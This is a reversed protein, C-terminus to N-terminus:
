KVEVETNLSQGPLGREFIARVMGKNGHTSSIKGEIKKGAVSTWVVTKGVFKEADTKKKVSVDLIFHREHIHKLSRRFQVVRAKTM